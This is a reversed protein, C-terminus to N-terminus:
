FNFNFGVRIDWPSEVLNDPQNIRYLLLIEYGAKSGSNQNYGLGAYVNGRNRRQPDGATDFGRIQSEYSYEVHAFIIPIIKVRSFVGASWTFLNYSEAGGQFNPTRLHNYVLSIRPGASFAPTFKYGLMPAIGFQFLSGSFSNSSFGLTFQGGFWYPSAGDAAPADARRSIQASLSFSYTLALLLALFRFYRM